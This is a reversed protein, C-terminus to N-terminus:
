YTGVVYRWLFMPQPYENSPGGHWLADLLYGCCVEVFVQQYHNSTEGQWLAELLYWLM